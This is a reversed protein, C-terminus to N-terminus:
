HRTPRRAPKSSSLSNGINKPKLDQLSSKYRHFELREKTMASSGIDKADMLRDKICNCRGPGDLYELVARFAEAKLGASLDTYMADRNKIHKSAIGSNEDKIFSIERVRRTRKEITKENGSRGIFNWMNARTYIKLINLSNELSTTKATNADIRDMGTKLKDLDYPEAALGTGINLSALM